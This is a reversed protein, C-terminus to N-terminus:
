QKEYAVGHEDGQSRSLNPEHPSLFHSSTLLQGWEVEAKKPDIQKLVSGSPKSLPL